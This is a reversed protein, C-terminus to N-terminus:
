ENHKRHGNRDKTVWAWHEKEQSPLPDENRKVVLVEPKEFVNGAEFIKHYLMIMVVQCFHRMSCNLCNIEM